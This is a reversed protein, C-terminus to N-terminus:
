VVLLIPTQFTLLHLIYKSFKGNSNYKEYLFNKLIDYFEIINIPSKIKIQFIEKFLFLQSNPIITKIGNKM